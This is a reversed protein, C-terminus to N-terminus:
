PVYRMKYIGTADQPLEESFYGNADAVVSASPLENGNEYIKVQANPSTKGQVEIIGVPIDVTVTSQASVPTNSLFFSFCALVIGVALSRITPKNWRM